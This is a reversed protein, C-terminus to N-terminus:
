PKPFTLDFNKLVGNFSKPDITPAPLEPMAPDGAKLTAANAGAASAAKAEAEAKLLAQADALKKAVAELRVQELAWKTALEQGRRKAELRVAGERLDQKRDRTAYALKIEAVNRRLRQKEVLAAQMDEVRAQEIELARQTLFRTMPQADFKLSNGSATQAYNFPVIPEAGTVADLGAAYTIAGDINISQHSIDASIDASLDAGDAIARLGPMRMVGGAVTWAVNLQPLPFVGGHVDKEILQAVNSEPLAQEAQRVSQMIKAYGDRAIGTVSGEGVRVTGSGTLSAAMGEASKGTASLSGSIDVSSEVNKQNLVETFDSGILRFDGSLGGVGAANSAVITGSIQGGNLQAELAELRIGAPLFVAKMKALKAVGLPGLDFTQANIILSGDFPIVPQTAFPNTSIGNGTVDFAGIGLLNEGLWKADLESLNLAGSVTSREAIAMNLSGGLGIDAINAEVKNLLLNGQYFDVDSAYTVATGMGVGAFVLGTANLYPDFDSSTLKIKGTFTPAAGVGQLNGEVNLKTEGADANIGIDMGSRLSGQGNFDVTVPGPAGLPVVPIGALTVLALPDNQTVSARWTGSLGLPDDLPGTANVAFTLGGTDTKVTSSITLNRTQADLATSAVISSQFDTLLGPWANVRGAFKALFQDDPFNSQLLNLFNAGDASIISADVTAAPNDPFGTVTGTASLSAGGLDTVMLRDIDVKDQKLRLSLGVAKAELGNHSVPGVDLSVNLDSGAFRSRGSGDLVGATLASLTDLQLAGGTLDLAVAPRAGDTRREANGKFTATGLALELNEFTQVEPALTVKSSFGLAELRRVSADVNGTLWNALGAPQNSAVLLNGAFGFKDGRSLLGDAELKTRGPLTAKLGSVRWAGNDPTAKFAIERITTDGAVIAPLNVDLTGPMAPFPVTDVFQRFAKLRDVPEVSVNAVADNALNLQTGDVKFAFAPMAGFTVRGTGTAVYPDDKSGTELRYESFNLADSSMEFKGSVRYPTGEDAVVGYGNKLQPQSPETLTAPRLTFKGGYSLKGDKSGASGDLEAVIARDTPILRINLPLTGKDGMQGTSGDIKLPEGDFLFDGVLRWPGILARASVTASSIELRHKTGSADNLVDILGDTIVMNEVTIKSADFPTEPRLTWDVVGNKDVTLVGHPADVRMDFILVEGSLFPALEADMSFKEVTFVPNEADEGVRVNTFTLSPFPLLRASASGAVKVPRGLIKSAEAEFSAKYGTWDVFYPALLAALLVAVILGGIIVFLRALRVERVSARGHPPCLTLTM